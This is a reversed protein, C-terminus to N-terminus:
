RSGGLSWAVEYGAGAGGRTPRFRATAFIGPADAAADLPRLEFMDASEFDGKYEVTDRWSSRFAHPRGQYLAVGARPGDYWDDIRLVDEFTSM